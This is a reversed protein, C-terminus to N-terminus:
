HVEIKLPKPAEAVATKPLHVTLVGDKSDAVIGKEDVNPPLYFSREFTGHFSEVRHFKEKKDEREFKREGAITIIGDDITVKVDEKAVAPLEARILYEKETESIDATPQWDFKKEMAEFTRPMRWERGSLMRNMAKEMEEFPQWRVMNM